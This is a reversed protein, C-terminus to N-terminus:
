PRSRAPGSSPCCSSGTARRARAEVRALPERVGLVLTVRLDAVVVHDLDGAADVDVLQEVVDVLRQGLGAVEADLARLGQGRLERRRLALLDGVGDLVRLHLDVGALVVRDQAPHDHREADDRGFPELEGLPEASKLSSKEIESRLSSWSIESGALGLGNSSSVECSPPRPTEAAQAARSRSTPSRSTPSRRAGARVVRVELLVRLAHGVGAAVGGLRALAGVQELARASLSTRATFARSCRTPITAAIPTTVSLMQVPAGSSPSHTPERTAGSDPIEISATNTM